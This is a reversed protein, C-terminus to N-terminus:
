ESKPSLGELRKDAEETLMTDPYEAKLQNLLKIAEAPKDKRYFDALALMVMPKPVLTAPQALLEQYLKVAQDAKGSQAYLRALQYKALASMESDGTAQVARFAKEAEDLKGLQLYSLGAYYLAVRGPRTRKYQQAVESFKKAADEFKNKEAFYTTEGPMAPEGATRIRAHFVEMAGELAASAKVTQRESYFRWGFVALLVTAVVAVSIWLAKQHSVVAEAGHVFTERIEDQKLEKRSIHHAV